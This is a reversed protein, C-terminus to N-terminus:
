QLMAWDLIQEFLHAKPPLTISYSFHRSMWVEVAKQRFSADADGQAPNILIAPKKKHDANSSLRLFRESMPDSDPNYFVFADAMEFINQSIMGNELGFSLLHMRVQSGARIGLTASTWSVFSNVSVKTPAYNILDLKQQPGALDTTLECVLQECLHLASKITPAVLVIRYNIISLEPAYYSM